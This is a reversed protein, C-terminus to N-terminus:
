KLVMAMILSVIFSSETEDGNLLSTFGIENDSFRPNISYIYITLLSDILQDFSLLDVFKDDIGRSRLLRTAAAATRTDVSLSRFGFHGM